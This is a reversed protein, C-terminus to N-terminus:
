VCDQPGCVQLVILDDPLVVALLCLLLLCGISRTLLGTRDGSLQLPLSILGIPLIAKLLGLLLLCIIFGTSLLTQLPCLSNDAREGSSSHVPLYTLRANRHANVQQGTM